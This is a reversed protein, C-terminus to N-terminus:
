NTVKETNNDLISSDDEHIYSFIDKDNENANDIKGLFIFTTAQACNVWQPRSSIFLLKASSM